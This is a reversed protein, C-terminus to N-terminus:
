KNEWVGNVGVYDDGIYTDSAMAGNEYFYYWYGNIKQWGTLMTGTEDFAYWYDDILRWGSEAMAGSSELYYWTNELKLWGTVMEGSSAFFYWRGNIKEWGTAMKGNPELYYWNDNLYLWGTKMAGDDTQGLYFYCGSVYQWGSSMAGNPSFYYWNGNLLEWGTVMYGSNDFYYWNDDIKQWEGAPYSGDENIYWWGTSTQHWGTIVPRNLMVPTSAYDSEYTGNIDEAIIYVYYDTGWGSISLSSPLKFSGSSDKGFTGNLEDYYLINAKNSNGATYKKDLILVSARSANDTGTIQYPVTIKNDTSYINAAPKIRLNGDVLTLKYETGSASYNGSVATSFLVSEQDINLAPAVLATASQVDFLVLYGEDDVAGAVAYGSQKFTCGCRLRYSIYSDTGSINEKM